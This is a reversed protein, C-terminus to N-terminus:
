DISLNLESVYMVSDKVEVVVIRSGSAIPVGDFSAAIQNTVGGGARVLVEGYGGAPIPVIVEGPLGSLSRLTFAISNESNEMPRVYLFFVATGAAIAILLALVVVAAAGLMSYKTLLYGAGGFVTIGGVLTMPQLFSLSDASIFNLAGDLAHSLLDGFILSILAFLIGGVLCTMFLTEM